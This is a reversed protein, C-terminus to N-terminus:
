VGLKLTIKRLATDIHNDNLEGYLNWGVCQPYVRKWHGDAFGPHDDSYRLNREAVSLLKWRLREHNYQQAYDYCTDRGFYNVVATIAAELTEYQEKPMKM